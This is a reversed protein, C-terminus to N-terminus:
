MRRKPAPTAGRTGLVEQKTTRAWLVDRIRDRVPGDPAACHAERLGQDTLDDADNQLVLLAEVRHNAAALHILVFDMSPPDHEALLRQRATAVFTADLFDDMEITTPARPLDRHRRILAIM